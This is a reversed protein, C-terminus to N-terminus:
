QKKIIIFFAFMPFGFTIHISIYRDGLYLLSCKEMAKNKQSFYKLFVDNGELCMFICKQFFLSM